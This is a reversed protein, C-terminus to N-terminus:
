NATSFGSRLAESMHLMQVSKQYMSDNCVNAIQLRSEPSDISSEM